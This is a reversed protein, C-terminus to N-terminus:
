SVKLVVRQKFGQDVDILKLAEVAKHLLTSMESNNTVLNDGHSEILVIEASRDFKPRSLPQWHCVVNCFKSTYINKSFAPWPRGFTGGYSLSKPESTLRFLSYKFPALPQMKRLGNIFFRIKFKPM